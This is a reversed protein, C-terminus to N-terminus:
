EEGVRFSVAPLGEENMLNHRALCHWAFRAHTPADVGEATLTITNPGTIEATAPVFVRTRGGMTGDSVEFWNLAEGDRSALGGGVHKFTLTVRNGQIAYSDIMPGYLVRDEQGYTQVLAINALRQAALTKNDPHPNGGGLVPFGTREDATIKSEGDGHTDSMMDNSVAMGTLPVQEMVRQQDEWIFQMRGGAYNTPAIQVFYFPMTDDGWAARWGEIVATFDQQYQHNRGDNEGQYWIFGRATYPVLGHLMSQYLLGPIHGVYRDQVETGFPHTEHLDQRPTWAHAQSGGFCSEIIGVPVGLERRMAAAFHYAVESFPRGDFPGAARANDENCALWGVCEGLDRERPTTSARVCFLRLLPDDEVAGLDVGRAMNSQGGAVWVEGVLIDALEITNTGSVTLTRGEESAEMAPLDVRWQGQADADVAAQAGGFSVVVREGADAWGWVAVPKDRQLVMGDTFVRPLRVEAQAAFVPGLCLMAGIIGWCLARSRSFV